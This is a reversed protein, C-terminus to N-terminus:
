LRGSVRNDSCQGQVISGPCRAAGIEGQVVIGGTEEGNGTGVEYREPRGKGYAEIPDVHAPISFEHGLSVLCVKNDRYCGSLV